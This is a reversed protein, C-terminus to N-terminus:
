VAGWTITQVGACSQSARYERGTAYKRTNLLRIMARLDGARYLERLEQLIEDVAGPLTKLTQIERVIDDM